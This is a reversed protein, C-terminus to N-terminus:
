CSNQKLHIGVISFYETPTMQPRGVQLLNQLFVETTHIVNVPQVLERITVGKQDRRDTLCGNTIVNFIGIDYKIRQISTLELELDRVVDRRGVVDSLLGALVQYLVRLKDLCQNIAEATNLKGRFRAEIEGAEKQIEEVTSEYEEETEFLATLDWTYKEEVENRKLLKQSM